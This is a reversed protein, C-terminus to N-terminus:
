YPVGFLLIRIKLVGFHPVGIKPFEWRQALCKAHLTTPTTQEEQNQDLVEQPVAPWAM